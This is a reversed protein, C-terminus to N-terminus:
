TLSSSTRNEPPKAVAIASPSETVMRGATAPPHASCMVRYSESNCAKPLVGSTPRCRNDGRQSSPRSPGCTRSHALSSSRLGVPDILSRGATRIISCASASPNNRGPAVMRSGVLPFVPM